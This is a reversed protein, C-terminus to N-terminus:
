GTFKNKGKNSNEDAADETVHCGDRNKVAEEILIVFPDLDRLLKAIGNSTSNIEQASAGTTSMSPLSYPPPM